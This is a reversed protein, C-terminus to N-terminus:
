SLLTLCVNIFAILGKKFKSKQEKVRREAFHVSDQGLDVFLM